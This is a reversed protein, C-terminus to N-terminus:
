CLVTNVDLKTNEMIEEKQNRLGNNEGKIQKKKSQRIYKLGM